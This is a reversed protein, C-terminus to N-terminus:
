THMKRRIAHKVWDEIDNIITKLKPKMKVPSKVEGTSKYEKVVKFVTSVAVGMSLAVKHGIDRVAIEPNDKLLTKYVNVIQIKEGSTLGKGRMHKKLPSMLKSPGPECNEEM